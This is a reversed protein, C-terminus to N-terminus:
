VGEANETTGASLYVCYELAVKAMVRMEGSTEYGGVQPVWTPPSTAPSLFQPLGPNWVQGVRWDGAKDGPYAM